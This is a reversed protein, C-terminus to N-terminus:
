TDFFSAVLREQKIFRFYETFRTQVIALAFVKQM